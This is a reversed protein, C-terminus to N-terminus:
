KRKRASSRSAKSSPSTGTARPKGTPSAKSVYRGAHTSREAIRTANTHKLRPNDKIKDTAIDSAVRELMRNNRTPIAVAKTNKMVLFKAFLSPEEEAVELLRAAAGDPVRKGQEWARVTEPSVNLVAAFVPQSLSLSSRVKFVRAADFEPPFSANARRATIEVRETRVDPLEGREYAIAEELGQIIEKGLDSHRRTM